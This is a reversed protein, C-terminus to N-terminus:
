FLKSWPGPIYWSWYSVLQQAYKNGALMVTSSFRSSAKGPFGENISFFFLTYIDEINQGLLVLMNSLNQRFSFHIGGASSTNSLHYLNLTALFSITFWTLIANHYIKFCLNALVLKTIYKPFYKLSLLLVCTAVPTFFIDLHWLYWWCFGTNNECNWFSLSRMNSARYLKTKTVKSADGEGM